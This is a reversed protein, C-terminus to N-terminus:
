AINKKGADNQRKVEGESQNGPTYNSPNDKQAQEGSDMPERVGDLSSETPKSEGSSNTPKTESTM